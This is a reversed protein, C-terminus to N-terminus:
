MPLEVISACAAMVMSVTSSNHFARVSHNLDNQCCNTFITFMCSRPRHIADSTGWLM